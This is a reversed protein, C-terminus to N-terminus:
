TYGNQPPRGALRAGHRALATQFIDPGATTRCSRSRRDWPAFPPRRPSETTHVPGACRRCSSDSTRYRLTGAFHPRSAPSERANTPHRAAITSLTGLRGVVSLAPLPFRDRRRPSNAALVLVALTCLLACAPEPVGESSAADASAGRRSVLTHGFNAKWVLYDDDTVTGPTPDNPLATDRGLNNRWVAYDAADVIGNGNYDGPLILTITLIANPDFLNNSYPNSDLDISFPSGDALVGSLTVNRDTITLPVNPSLTGTLDNGDLIFQTGFWNVSGAFVRFYDGISGGSINVISGAVTSTSGSTFHDGVSGGSINITSDNEARFFDGVTGGSINVTSGSEALFAGGVSGGSITVTSGAFADFGAGVTGGSVTVHAGVAEFNNGVQGANIQVTSGWGANFNEGLLGGEEVVLTQGSHVGLPAPDAPLMIVAPGVPPSTAAELTLTGDTFFDSDQSSFAFPTGDALTGSLLSGSPLNFALTNGVTELGRVPVGDLRFDGGSITVVSGGSAIFRDGVAGGSISVTSGSIADFSDGVTGGSINVVSGGSANFDDGVSGGSITVTSGEFADFGNGVTGGSINVVSSAFADFGNGITGGAITVQARVAEFNRGVQGANIQVTSGWGAGFNDNLLGGEEVVLTQGGLIGLPAPDAPLTILPPGVPPLAAADLTLTGSFSDSDQSSFAFPTGDALTGSLLSGSPFNFALTNGVTELGEVPAVDLRFEGGTITVDSDSDGIFIASRSIFRDGVTGGSITVVSGSSAILRDSVTGGSINVTSGDLAVFFPGVTGGAINVEV